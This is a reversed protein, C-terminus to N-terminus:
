MGEGLPEKIELDDYSITIPALEEKFHNTVIFNTAVYLSYLCFMAIRVHTLLVEVFCTCGLTCLKRKGDM